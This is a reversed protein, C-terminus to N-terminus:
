RNAASYKPELREAVDVQVAEAVRLQKVGVVDGGRPSVVQRDGLGGGHVDGGLPVRAVAAVDRADAGVDGQGLEGLEGRLEVAGGAAPRPLVAAGVWPVKWRVQRWDPDFSPPVMLSEAGAVVRGMLPFTCPPAM